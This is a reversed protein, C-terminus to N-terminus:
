LDLEFNFIAAILNFRLSFRKRRNRYTEKLIRWIKLSRIVHEVTIRFSAIASNEKVQEEPLPKNKPKKTPLCCQPHQKQLGQYGSDAVYWVKDQIHVNTEKFLAFDHKSGKCFRTTLIKHSSADIIIQAKLSHHKHKGSYYNKQKKPDKLQVKQQM